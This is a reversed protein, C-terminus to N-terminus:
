TVEVGAQKITKASNGTAIIKYNNEILGKVLDTLKTKDSVSILAFKQL